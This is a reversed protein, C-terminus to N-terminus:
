GGSLGGEAVMERLLEGLVVFGSLFVAGAGLVEWGCVREEGNRRFRERERDRERQATVGASHSRLHAIKETGPLHEQARRIEPAAIWCWVSLLLLM